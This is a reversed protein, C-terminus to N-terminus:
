ALTRVSKERDWQRTKAAAIFAEKDNADVVGADQGVNAIRLLAHGGKDVAIAKLHGFADRVFDIAASEKSLIKVGQDSLIVAVADFLVSPTGALQGDAVLLSGDSLQVGGVKPAVIKM